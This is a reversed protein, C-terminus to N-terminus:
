RFGDITKLFRKISEPLHEDKMVEPFYDLDIGQENMQQLAFLDAEPECDRYYSM